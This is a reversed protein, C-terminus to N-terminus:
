GERWEQVSSPAGQVILLRAGALGRVREIEIRDIWRDNPFDPISKDLLDLLPKIRNDLDGKYNLGLHITLSLHPGFRPRGQKLWAANVITSADQRWRKYESSPFRGSGMQSAPANVFMNNASPPMPVSVAFTRGPAPSMDPPREGGHSALTSQGATM